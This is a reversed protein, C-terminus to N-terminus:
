SFLRGIDLVTVSLMLLMLAVFGVFHIAGEIEAKVPKRRVAEIGFFVLRGGDLMPIPLLNFIGVNISILAAMFLSNQIGELFSEAFGAKSVESITSVVGVPGAIDNLGYTGRVLDFLTLIILRSLSFAEGGARTIVNLFTKDERVIGFDVVVARKGEETLRTFFPVNELKVREGNRMVTFEFLAISEDEAMRMETNIFQYSVDMWTFIRMGNIHTIKDGVRLQESSIAGQPFFRVETTEVHEKTGVIILCLIFGLVL